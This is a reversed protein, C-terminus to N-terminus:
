LGRASKMEFECSWCRPSGSVGVYVGFFVGRSWQSSLSGSSARGAEGVVVVAMGVSNLSWWARKASIGWIPSRGGSGGVVSM